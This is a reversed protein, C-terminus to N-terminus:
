PSVSFSMADFDFVVASYAKLVDEGLRAAEGTANATVIHTNRLVLPEGALQLQAQPVRRVQAEVVGGMSSSKRATTVVSAREAESLLAAGTDFTDYLYSQDDGSDLPAARRGLAGARRHRISAL